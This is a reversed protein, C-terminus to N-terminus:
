PTRFRRERSTVDSGPGAGEDPETADAADRVETRSQQANGAFGVREKGDAVSRVVNDIEIAAAHAQDLRLLPIGDGAPM